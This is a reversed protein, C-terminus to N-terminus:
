ILGSHRVEPLIDPTELTILRSGYVGPIVEGSIM